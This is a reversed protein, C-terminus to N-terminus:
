SGFYGGAHRSDKALSSDDGFGRGGGFFFVWQFGQLEDELIKYTEM